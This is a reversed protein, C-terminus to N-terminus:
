LINLEGGSATSVALFRLRENAFIPLIGRVYTKLIQFAKVAQILVYKYSILPVSVAM